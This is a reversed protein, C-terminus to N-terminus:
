NKLQGLKDWNDQRSIAFYMSIFSKSPVNVLASISSRGSFTAWSILFRLIWAPLNSFVKPAPVGEPTGAIPNDKTSVFVPVVLM